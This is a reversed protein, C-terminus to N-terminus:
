PSAASPLYLCYNVCTCPVPIPQQHTFQHKNAYKALRMTCGGTWHPTVPACGFRVKLTRSFTHQKPFPMVATFFQKRSSNNQVFFFLFKFSSCSSFPCGALPAAFGQLSFVFGVNWFTTARTHLRTSSTHLAARAFFFFYGMASSRTHSPTAFLHTRSTVLRLM